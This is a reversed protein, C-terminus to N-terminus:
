APTGMGERELLSRVRERALFTARMEETLGQAIKQVAGRAVARAGEDDALRGLAEGAEWQLPLCDLRRGAELARRVEDGDEQCLGRLLHGWGALEVYGAREAVDVLQDAHDLAAARDGAILYARSLDRLTQARFWELGFGTTATLSNSLLAMGQEVQGLLAYALGIGRMAPATVIHTLGATELAKQHCTLGAEFDLLGLYADGLAVYAIARTDLSVAAKAVAPSAKRVAPGYQGAMTHIWAACASATYMVAPLDAREGVRIGGEAKQLAHAYEGLFGYALGAFGLCLGTFSHEGTRQTQEEGQELLDIAETLRGRVLAILGAYSLAESRPDYGPWRRDDGVLRLGEEIAASAEDLQGSKFLGLALLFLATGRSWDAGAAELEQCAARASSVQVVVDGTYAAILAAGRLAHGRLYPDGRAEGMEMLVNCVTRAADYHGLQSQASSCEHYLDALAERDIRVNHEQILGMARQYSRVAEPLAYAAKARDGALHLYHVARDWVEGLYAHRALTGYHAELRGAYLWEMEELARRHLRRREGKLIGMYTAEHSLAHNFIYAKGQEGELRYYRIFNRDLLLRLHHTLREGDGSMAALVREPFVRGIVAAWRLTERVEPELRDVRGVLLGRLTDPIHITSVERTVEWRGDREVLVEDQILSRIIEEVFLPNGEAKELIRRQLSHPLCDRQLLNGILTASEEWSLPALRIESYVSVEAGGERVVQLPGSKPEPRLVLLFLIPVELALPMLYTLLDLSSEDAWHLDEMVVVTPRDQAMGALLARVAQFLGRRLGEGSLLELAGTSEVDPPLGLLYALISYVPDDRHPLFRAVMERLRRRGEEPSAAEDLDLYVQILDRFPFYPQEIQFSLGRGELWRPEQIASRVEAVLRSKGLGAEGVVSVIGGQGALLWRLRDQLATMERVRGVMPSALGGIGWARRYGGRASLLIYVPVAELRGRVTLPPLPRFRFLRQTQRYTAEGVFVQGPEALHALRNALNVADGIVTFARLGPAGVEGAFVLGTNVGCQVTLPEPLSVSNALNFQELVEMMEIAAWLARAADDEHVEPAGFVVMLEQGILRDVTGGYRYLPASLAEVCGNILRYAEEADLRELLTLLGPIHAFLITVYRREGAVPPSPGVLSSLPQGCRGCFGYGAPNEFGCRPCRV